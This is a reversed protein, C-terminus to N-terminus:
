AFAQVDAYGDRADVTMLRERLPTGLGTILKITEHVELAACLMPTASPNGLVQEIGQRASGGKPYFRYLGVDGPLITMVQAYFGAIAGHVLPIGRRGAADQMLLRSPINDLADIAVEASAM